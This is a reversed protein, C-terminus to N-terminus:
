ALVDRLMTAVEMVGSPAPIPPSPISRVFQIEALFEGSKLKEETLTLFRGHRVLWKRLPAEEPWEQRSVLLMPIGSCAAEMCLAYATKSIVVDCSRVLDLFPFNLSSAMAVDPHSVSLTSALVLRLNGLRPWHAIPLEIPVGGLALLAIIQDAELGLQRRLESRRDQGLSAVPGVRRGNCISPMAMSPTVQLFTQASAYAEVMVKQIKQAGVFQKCYRRYIDAWNNSGLAVAPIGARHAAALSLYPINSLLLSPKLSALNTTAHSLTDDWDSHRCWYAFASENPVVHVADAMVMGFDAHSAYDFNGTLREVLWARPVTTRVTLRLGPWDRRLANLIPITMAAHGYGHGSLDVVLHREM